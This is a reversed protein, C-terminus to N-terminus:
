WYSEAAQREGGKQRWAVIFPSPDIRESENKVAAANALLTRSSVGSLKSASIRLLPLGASTSNKAGPTAVALAKRGNVFLEGVRKSRLFVLDNDGLNVGVIVTGESLSKADL